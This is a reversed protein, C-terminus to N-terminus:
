IEVRTAGHTGIRANDNIYTLIHAEEGALSSTFGPWDLQGLPPHVGKHNLDWDLSYIFNKSNSPTCYPGYQTPVASHCRNSIQCHEYGYIGFKPDYGGVLNLIHKTFYLMVGGANQYTSVGESERVKQIGAVDDLHMFHHVGTSQNAEIYVKEWGHNKPCCDDDFLFIHDCNTLFKICENKAKAVGLREGSKKYFVFPFRAIMETYDSESADDLVFYLVDCWTPLFEAHHELMKSLVHVRNRTTIGVGIRM